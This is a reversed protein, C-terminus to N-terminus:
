PGCSRCTATTPGAASLRNRLKGEYNETRAHHEATLRRLVVPAFTGVDASAASVVVVLLSGLTDVVIQRKVGSPKKGGDYGREGGMETAKVTQSDIAGAGPSPERGDAVRVERRLADMIRQWTGDDRWQVFHDSVISKAPLDHPLSDWQGSIEWQEPTLDSPYAKCTPIHESSLEHQPGGTSAVDEPLSSNRDLMPLATRVIRGATSGVSKM